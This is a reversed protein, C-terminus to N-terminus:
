AKKWAKGATFVVVFIVVLSVIVGTISPKSSAM